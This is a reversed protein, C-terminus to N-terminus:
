VVAGPAALLICPIYSHASQHLALTAQDHPQGIVLRQSPADGLLQVFLTGLQGEGELALGEFLTHARQGLLEAAVQQDIAVHGVHVRQIRGEVSQFLAPVRDVEDDMGDAKRVLSLQATAIVVRRQIVEQHRHVNRGIRQDGHGLARSIIGL